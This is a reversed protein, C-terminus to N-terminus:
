ISRTLIIYTSHEMEDIKKYFDYFDHYETVPYYGTYIVMNKIVKVSDEDIQFEINYRGYKSEISREPFKGSLKYGPVVKYILTDTKSMPYSILVPFKRDGPKEFPPIDFPIHSMLLENGYRKCINRSVTEYYLELQLSDRHTLLLNYNVLEFGNEIFHKSIIRSKESENYSKAIDLLDEFVEGKYNVVFSVSASQNSIDSISIKRSELVEDASLSPTRLFHSNNQEIIFAERNQTFTGLYNFPGKSTCDLWVTDNQFPICLIVHNFQQSPLNKNIEKVPNGAYVLTYFSEIGIYQLVSRMYNTLAKCDGYKNEAVYSAPYPKLGGTEITVNLYRTADQLYHYLAKIKDKEDDIDKIIQHINFQERNPLEGLDRLLDYQWNGFTLWTNFSGSIDFRFNQPVIAVSPFYDSYHPTFIEPKIIDSYSAEWSYKIFNEITDISRSNIFRDSFKIVYGQRVILNLSAKQTPVSIDIVPTWYDLYLFEEQQSQYSYCIKYPYDNHKLVFEKVFDDEYFSFRSISSKNIIENKNLKRIIRGGSDTIYANIKSVENLNSYPISVKTYKEGARNNIKIEFFYNKILKNNVIKIDTTQTILEADPNQANSVFPIFIVAILLLIRKM